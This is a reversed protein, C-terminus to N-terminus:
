SGGFLQLVLGCAISISFQGHEIIRPTSQDATVVGLTSCVFGCLSDDVVLGLRTVPLFRLSEPVSLLCGNLQRLM